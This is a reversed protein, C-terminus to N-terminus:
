EVEVTADESHKEVTVDDGTITVVFPGTGTIKKGAVSGQMEGECNVAVVRGDKFFRVVAAKAELQVRDGGYTVPFHNMVVVDASL